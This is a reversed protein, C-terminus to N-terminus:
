PRRGETQFGCDSPEHQGASGMCEVHVVEDADLYPVLVHTPYALSHAVASNWESPEPIPSNM